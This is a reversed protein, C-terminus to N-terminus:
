LETRLVWMPYSVVVQSVLELAELVEPRWPCRYEYTCVSDGCVYVYTFM